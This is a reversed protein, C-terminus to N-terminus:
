GLKRADSISGSLNRYRNKDLLYLYGYQVLNLNHGLDNQLHYFWDITSDGLCYNLETTFLNLFIGASKATNGQGPGGLKDVVVVNKEPNMKKLHLASSLGLVGAGVVLIDRYMGISTLQKEDDIIKGMALAIISFYCTDFVRTPM